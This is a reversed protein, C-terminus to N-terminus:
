NFLNPINVEKIFDIDSVFTVAKSNKGAVQEFDIEYVAPVVEILQSIDDTVNAIIPTYGQINELPSPRKGLYTIKCGKIRKGEKDEFDYTQKALIIKKSM